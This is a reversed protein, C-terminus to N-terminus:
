RSKLALREVDIKVIEAGNEANNKILNWRFSCNWNLIRSKPCFDSWFHTQFHFNSSFRSSFGCFFNECLDPWNQYWIWSFSECKWWAFFNFNILRMEGVDSFCRLYIASFSFCRSFVDLFFIEALNLWNFYENIM